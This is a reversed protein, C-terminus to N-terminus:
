EIKELGQEEVNDPLHMRYQWKLPVLFLFFFFENVFSSLTSIVLQAIQVVLKQMEHHKM